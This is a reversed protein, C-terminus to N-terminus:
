QNKILNYQKRYYTIIPPFSSLQHQTFSYNNAYPGYPSSVPKERLDPYDLELDETTPREQQDIFGAVDYAEGDTLVADQFSAGFPMNGKIFNAATLTRAM